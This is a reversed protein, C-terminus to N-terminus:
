FRWLKNEGKFYYNYPVKKVDQIRNSVHNLFVILGMIPLFIFFKIPPVM